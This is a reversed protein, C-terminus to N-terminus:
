LAKIGYLSFTSGSVFDGSDPLINISTIAATSRWSSCYTVVYISTVNTRSLSTKYTTTNAYNQISTITSEFNATSGNGVRAVTDSTNRGSATASGDGYFYTASYNNATDSNYRLAIYGGNSASKKQSSVLILDTYTQVISSFTVSAVNSTLTQTSIIDYTEAM